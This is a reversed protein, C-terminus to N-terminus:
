GSAQTALLAAGHVEPPVRRMMNGSPPKIPAAGRKECERM